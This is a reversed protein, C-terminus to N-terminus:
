RDAAWGRLRLAQAHASLIALTREADEATHEEMVAANIRDPLYRAADHREQKSASGMELALNNIASQLRPKMM